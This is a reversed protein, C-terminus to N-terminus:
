RHNFIKNRLITLAHYSLEITFWCIMIHSFTMKFLSTKGNKKYLKSLFNEFGVMGCDIPDKKSKM